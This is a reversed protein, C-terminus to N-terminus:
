LYTAETIYKVMVLNNALIVEM